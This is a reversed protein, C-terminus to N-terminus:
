VIFDIESTKGDLVKKMFGYYGKYTRIQAEITKWAVHPTIILNLDDEIEIKQMESDDAEFSYGRLEGERLKSIIQRKDYLEDMATIDIILQDPKVLKELNNLLKQSSENQSVTIFIIENQMLKELEDVYEFENNKDSRSLYQIQMGLSNLRNGIEYGIAGYGIIGVTRGHFENAYRDLSKNKTFPIIQTILMFMNTIAFQAVAKANAGSNNRYKIGLSKLLELDLGSYNSFPTFIYKVNKFDNVYRNLTEYGGEVSFSDFLLMKEGNDSYLEDVDSFDNKYKTYLSYNKNNKLEKLIEPVADQVEKLGQNDTLQIIKM